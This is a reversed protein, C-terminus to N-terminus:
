RLPWHEALEAEREKTPPFPSHPCSLSPAHLHSRPAVAAPSSALGRHDLKCLSQCLPPLSRRASICYCPREGAQASLAPMRAHQRLLLVTFSLLFSSLRFSPLASVSKVQYTKGDLEVEYSEM